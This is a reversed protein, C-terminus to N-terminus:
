DGALTDVVLAVVAVDVVRWDDRRGGGESNTLDMSSFDDSATRHLLPSRLSLSSLKSIGLLRLM